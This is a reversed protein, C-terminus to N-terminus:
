EEQRETRRVRRPRPVRMEVEVGQGPTTHIDVEGGLDTIRGRISQAIGLRGAGAAEVVRAPAMGRGDDRVSLTIRSPEDELLVWAQAGPGAHTKVNDVASAAAAAIETAVPEPLLVATAPTVLQVRAAALPRLLYRLDVMGETTMPAADLSVLARLSAEQEGALAGLEAAEGGIEAGRRQVLALVQLVGDHIGRALRERERTAAALEIAQQMRREAGRALATLYGVGFGALLLIVTGSFVNQSAQGRLAVDLGGIALAAGLALRRGGKVAFAFVPAAVWAMTLTPAGHQRDYGTVVAATALLCGATVAFDVGLLRWTRLAPVRYAWGTLLTWLTMAALVGFGLLPRQYRPYDVAVLVASYALAALRFVGIARWLANELNV